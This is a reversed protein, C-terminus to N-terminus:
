CYLWLPTHTRLYIVGGMDQHQAIKNVMNPFQSILKEMAEHVVKEEEASRCYDFFDGLSIRSTKLADNMAGSQRAENSSAMPQDQTNGAQELTDTDERPSIVAQEQVQVQVKGAQVPLINGDKDLDVGQVYKSCIMCAAMFIVDLAGEFYERGIDRRNKLLPHADLFQLLEREAAICNSVRASFILETGKPYQSLREQVTSHRTRGPKWVPKGLCRFERERVIYIYM